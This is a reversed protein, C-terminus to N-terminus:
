GRLDSERLSRSFRAENQVDRVSNQLFDITLGNNVDTTELSHIYEHMELGLSKLSLLGDRALSLDGCGGSFHRNRKIYAESSSSSSPQRFM